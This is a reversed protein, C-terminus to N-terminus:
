HIDKLDTWFLRCGASNLLLLACLLIYVALYVSKRRTFLATVTFALYVFWGIALWPTTAAENERVGFLRLIGAPFMQPFLIGPLTLVIVAAWAVLLLVLRRTVSIEPEPVEAPSVADAAVGPISHLKVWDQKRSKEICELGEGLDATALSDNSLQSEVLLRKIEELAFPGEIQSEASRRVYYRM